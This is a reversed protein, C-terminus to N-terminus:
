NKAFNYNGNHFMYEFRRIMMLLELNIDMEM